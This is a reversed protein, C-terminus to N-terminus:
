DITEKIGYLALALAATRRLHGNRNQYGTETFGHAVATYKM